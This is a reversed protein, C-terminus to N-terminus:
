GENSIKNAIYVSIGKMMTLSEIRKPRVIEKGLHMDLILKLYNGGSMHTAPYGGGFRPNLDIVWLKGHADEIIDIDMNGVHKLVGSINEALDSIRKNEIVRSKDTEGARMDIKLKAVCHIFKGDFDNLIDVGYEHGSIFEQLIDTGESFGRLDDYNKIIAMDVSGSGIIKKRIFMGDTLLDKIDNINSYIKPTNFKLKDGIEVYHKKNLSIEVVDSNSVVVRIGHKLFENKVNALAMLERDSLPIIIDINRKLCEDLLASIFVDDGRSLQPLIFNEVSDDVFFAATDETSDSLFLEIPYGQEKLQLVYEVMYTRRGINTFLLNM